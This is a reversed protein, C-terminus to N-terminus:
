DKKEEAPAEAPKKAAKSASELKQLEVKQDDNLLALIDDRQKQQLAKIDALFKTHIDRIKDKQEESLSSLDSWPKFLRTNKPKDKPPEASPAATSASRLALSIGAALLITAVLSRRLLM